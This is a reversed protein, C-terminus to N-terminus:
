KDLIIKPEGKVYVLHVESCEVVAVLYPDFSVQLMVKASETHVEVISIAQGDLDLVNHRYFKGLYIM